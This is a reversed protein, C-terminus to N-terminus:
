PQPPCVDCHEADPDPTAMTTGGYAGLNILCGNPTPEETCGSAPDGADICPSSTMLTLNGAGANLFKPNQGSIIGDKNLTNETDGESCSYFASYSIKGYNASFGKNLIGVGSIESFISNTISAPGTTGALLIGHGGAGAGSGVEACSLGNVNLDGVDNVVCSATATGLGSGSEILAAVTGSLDCETCNDFFFGTAPGPAGIEEGLGLPGGDGGAIGVASNGTAIMASSESILVGYAAGGKGGTSLVEPQFKTWASITGQQGHIAGISNGLVDCQDCGDLWIGVGDGGEGSIGDARARGGGGGSIDSVSNEEVTCGVCGRMRVGVGPGGKGASNFGSWGTMGTLGSVKNNRITVNVSDLVVMKGYNTPNGPSKLELDEIVMDAVGFVWVIPDGMYTNTANIDNDEADSEVVFGFGEQDAGAVKVNHLIIGGKGGLAELGVNGNLANSLSDTLHFNAGVGGSGGFEGGSPWPGGGGGTIPATAGVSNNSLVNANSGDLSIGWGEGGHGGAASWNGNGGMGGTVSDVSCGDVISTVTNVLVIGAAAGGLGGSSNETTNGGSGATVGSVISNTIEVEQCTDVRIGQAESGPGCAGDYYFHTSYGKGGTLQDVVVDDVTVGAVYQLWLGVTLNGSGIESDSLDNITVNTLAGGEIIGAPLGQWHIGVLGGQTTLREISVNNATVRLATDGEPPEVVVGDLSQGIISLGEKDLVVAEEYLGDLVYIFYDPEADSVGKAITDFPHGPTGDQDPDASNGADVWVIAEAECGNQPNGDIDSTGAPCPKPICLEDVCAGVVAPNTTICALGCEGCNLADSNLEVECGSAVVEDCDDYGPTCKVIVCSGELCVSQAFPFICKKGCEGCNDDDDALDAECGTAVELDCDGFLDDCSALACLGEQCTASAHELPCPLGEGIAVLGCGEPENCQATLCPNENPNLADCDDSVVPVGESCAGESDCISDTTCSLEDDCITGVEVPLAICVGPVPDSTPDCVGSKCPDEQGVSSCDKSEGSCTGALCQDSITCPDDDDCPILDDAPTTVCQDSEEVCLEDNCQDGGCDRDVGVCVGALCAEDVTCYLGDSCETDDAVPTHECTNDATCVDTTCSTGDECIPGQGECTGNLCISSATCDSGDDCDMGGNQATWSLTNVKPDCVKCAGDSGPPSTDAPICMDDIVCWEEALINLCKGTELDCSDITCLLQDDCGLADGTCAGSLCRDLETCKSGDDCSKFDDVPSWSSDTQLPNCVACGGSDPQAAGSLICEDAIFCYGPVPPHECGDGEVCVDDTCEKGDDCSYFVGQCDGDVCVDEKTCPDADSCEIGTQPQHECTGDTCTDSTCPNDDDACPTGNEAPSPVEPNAPNCVHCGGSIPQGLGYCVDDILCAGDALTWESNHKEPLCKQCQFQENKDGSDYCEGEIACKGPPTIALCKDLDDDCKGESCATEHKSCDPPEGGICEGGKCTDDLTCFLTDECETGEPEPICEGPSNQQKCSHCAQECASNCCVEDACFGSGCESSVECSQGPLKKSQCSGSQADCYYGPKTCHADVDCDPVVLVRVDVELSSKNSANELGNSNVLLLASKDGYWPVSERDISLPLTQPDNPLIAGVLIEGSSIWNGPLTISYELLGDGSNTVVLNRVTGETGYDLVDSPEVKLVPQGVAMTVAVEISEQGPAEFRVEGAYTGPVLSTRNIVRLVISKSSNAGVAGADPEVALWVIGNSEATVNVSFSISGGGKNAVEVFRTDVEADFHVVEPTVALIAPAASDSAGPGCAAVVLIALSVISISRRFPRM